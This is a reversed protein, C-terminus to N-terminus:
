NRANAGPEGALNVVGAGIVRRSKREQLFAVARLNEPKWGKALTVTSEASISAGQRADASGIPSLQRVVTRHNLKRGANEGRSVNSSLNSETVALLLDVTDGATVAPLNGARVQLSVAGATKRALTIQVEAKPARAAQAIAAVAKNWNSGVFEARGDVVMQPTYNGDRGFAEAYEGQRQGFVPASFPDSWGIYNWYDVHEGLAIIEAGEVPQTRELKALVEDAPPCSSCGESTFLEVIVPIRKGAPQVDSQTADRRIASVAVSTQGQNGIVVATVLSGLIITALILWPKM